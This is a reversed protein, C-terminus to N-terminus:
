FNATVPKEDSVIGDTPTSNTKEGGTGKKAKAALEEIERGKNELWREYRDMQTGLVEFVRQFDRDTAPEVADNV